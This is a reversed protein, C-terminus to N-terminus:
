LASFDCGNLIGGASVGCSRNGVPIFNHYIVLNPFFANRWPVLWTCAVHESNLSWWGRISCSMSTVPWAMLTSPAAGGGARQEQGQGAASKEQSGKLVQWSVVTECRYILLFEEQSLNHLVAVCCCLSHM